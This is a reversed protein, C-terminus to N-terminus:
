YFIGNKMISRLDAGTNLKWATSLPIAVDLWDLAWGVVVHITVVPEYEVTLVKNIKPNSFFDPHQSSEFM